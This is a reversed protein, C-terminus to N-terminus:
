SSAAELAHRLSAENQPGRLTTRISGHGDVAFTTPLGTIRYASGVTGQGDRVNPFTWAHRGIFARAGSLGDSWNVGIVRGNGAGSKSLHEIAAAEQACPDCWSAWFVVLKSRGSALAPAPPGALQERPLAPAPRAASSRNSALGVIALVAAAAVIVATLLVL